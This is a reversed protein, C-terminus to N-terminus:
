ICADIEAHSRAARRIGKNALGRQFIVLLDEYRNLRPQLM